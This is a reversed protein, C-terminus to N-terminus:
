KYIESSTKLWVSFYEYVEKLYSKLGKYIFQLHVRFDMSHM